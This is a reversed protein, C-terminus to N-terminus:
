LIDYGKRSLFSFFFLVVDARFPMEGRGECFRVIENERQYSPFFSILVVLCRHRSIFNETWGYRRTLSFFFFLGSRPLRSVRLRGNGHFVSIRHSGLSIRSDAIRVKENSAHLSVDCRQSFSISFFPSNTCRLTKLRHSLCGAIFYSLFSFILSFPLSSFLPLSCHCRGQILFRNSASAGNERRRRRRRKEVGGETRVHQLM